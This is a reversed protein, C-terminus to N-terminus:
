DAACIPPNEGPLDKLASEIWGFRVREQELRVNGRLRNDRLDDFLQREAANLRALDRRVPQTEDTWQPAHALLTERDMLFSNAHPVSARLQDLIAFGHTDIDGWYFVACRNIWGAQGLMEFGYGAGFIVMSGPVDPFALFNIENETIFVRTVLPELRAFAEQDLTIDRAGSGPLLALQADLIRFRIRLPKDRLGYRRCFRAVGVAQADIAAPPLALDLLGSLVARHAEIFKSHIGAVDIQRLYVDPRPHTQMWTVIDLLRPWDDALALAQLPNGALWPLTAPQRDRTLAILEVFSRADRTKGILALADQLTDIWIKEPLSNSGLLRHRRERMVVRYHTVRRLDSIWTRVAEFQDALDTSAPGKLTLRRPFTAKDEVADGDVLSALLLGRDWLRLVQARLDAPTTWTM